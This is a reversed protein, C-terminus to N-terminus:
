RPARTRKYRIFTSIRRALVSIEENLSALEESNTFDLRGAIGM